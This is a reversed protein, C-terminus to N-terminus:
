IGTPARLLRDNQATKVHAAQGIKPLRDLHSRLPDGAFRDKWLRPTLEAVASRPIARCESCYTWWTHIRIWARYGARRCCARSSARMVLGSRQGCFLWNKRGIAVPRIQRELHNTDLPVAPDELFVKLGTERELAYAMAKAFPSSPLLAHKAQLDRLRLFRLVGLQGHNIGLYVVAPGHRQEIVPAIM